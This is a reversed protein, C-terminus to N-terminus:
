LTFATLTTTATYVGEPQVVSGGIGVRFLITTTAGLPHNANTNSAITEPTTSLGDWCKGVTTLSGGNCLAGNDKFRQVVDVGDPSFAFHADTADTNFGFDPNAGAPVYDSISDVGKQMAPTASSKITLEYGSPSDTTVTITTSASSIGGTVGPISPSLTLDGLSSIAIYVEQMQQYGAKLSYTNSQSNGTGVEGLTSEQTYNDSESLGGSFNISDSQIQYNTSQRIQAVSIHLSSFLLITGLSAYLSFSLFDKWM